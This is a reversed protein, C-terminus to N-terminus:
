CAPSTQFPARFTGSGPHPRRGKEQLVSASFSKMWHSIPLRCRAPEMADPISQVSSISELHVGGEGGGGGPDQKSDKLVGTGLSWPLGSAGEHTKTYYLDHRQEYWTSLVGILFTGLCSLALSCHLWLLTFPLPHARFLAHCRLCIRAESSVLPFCVPNPVTEGYLTDDYLDSSAM